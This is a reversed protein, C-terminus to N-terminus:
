KVKRRPVNPKGMRGDLESHMKLVGQLDYKQLTLWLRQGFAKEGAQFWTAEVQPFGNPGCAFRDEFAHASELLKWIERRGIETSLAHSWFGVAEDYERKIRNRRRRETELDDAGVTEQEAPARDAIDNLDLELDPEDSM